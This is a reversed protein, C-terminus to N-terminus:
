PAVPVGNWAQGDWTFQARQHGENSIQLWDLFDVECQVVLFNLFAQEDRLPIEHRTVIPEGPSQPSSYNGRADVPVSEWLRRTIENDRHLTVRSQARIQVASHPDFFLWAAQGSDTLQKVKRSRADSHFVLLRSDEDAERLVVTRLEATRSGTTAVVPLHWPSDAKNVGTRFANWCRELITQLLADSTQEGMTLENKM